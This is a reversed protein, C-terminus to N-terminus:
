GVIAGILYLSVGFVFCLEHCTCLQQFFNFVPTSYSLSDVLLLLTLSVRWDLYLDGKIIRM